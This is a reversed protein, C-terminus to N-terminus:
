DGEQLWEQPITKNAFLFEHKECWQAYTTPSGKYLKANQNSFVFRIDLEPHQEKILLHKQRDDVTWRGKTEVYFIGGNKTPLVFDPTYTSPREPWIYTIKDTEYKVELGANKIQGAVKDELGSRYGHIIGRYQPRRSITHLGRKTIM